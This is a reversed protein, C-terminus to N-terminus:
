RAQTDLSLKELKYKKILDIVDVVNQYPLERDARVSIVPPDPFDSLNLLEVELQEKSVASGDFYFKGDASISITKVQPDPSASARVSELPLNIKISQEMLPTTVMFIILLSFALDILPTVNIENIAAMRDQRKFSRAM